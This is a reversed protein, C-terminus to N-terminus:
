PTAGKTAADHRRKWWGAGVAVLVLVLVVVAGVLGAGGESKQAAPSAGPVRKALEDIRGNLEANVAALDAATLQASKDKAKAAKARAMEAAADSVDAPKPPDAPVPPEAPPTPAPGGPPPDEPGLLAVLKRLM